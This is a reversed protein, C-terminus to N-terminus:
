VSAECQFGTPGIIFSNYASQLNATQMQGQLLSGLDFRVVQSSEWGMIEKLNTECALAIFWYYPLHPYKLLGSCPTSQCETSSRSHHASELNFTQM